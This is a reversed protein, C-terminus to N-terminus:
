GEDGSCEISDLGAFLPCEQGSRRSRIIRRELGDLSDNFCVTLTYMHDTSRVPLRSEAMTMCWRMLAREPSSEGLEIQNRVKDIFAAYEGGVGAVRALYFGSGVSARTLWGRPMPNAVAFKAADVLLPHDKVFKVHEIRSVKDPRQRTGLPYSMLMQSIAAVTVANAYGDLRLMDPVSRPKGMDMAAQATSELGRIVLMKVSVGAKAIAALRHQGDLLEGGVAIKVSEGNFVWRGSLIDGAIQDVMQQSLKRNKVNGALMTKADEPTVDEISTTIISM